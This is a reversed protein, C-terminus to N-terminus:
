TKKRSDNEMDNPGNIIKIFIAFYLNIVPTLSVLSLHYCNQSLLNKMNKQQSATPHSNVSM